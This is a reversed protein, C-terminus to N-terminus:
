NVLSAMGLCRTSDKTRLKGRSKHLKLRKLDNNAAHQLNLLHTHQPFSYFLFTPCLSFHSNLSFSACFAIISYFFIHPSVTITGRLSSTAQEYRRSRNGVSAVHFLSYILSSLFQFLIFYLLLLSYSRSSSFSRYWVLCM